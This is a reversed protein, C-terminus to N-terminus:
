GQKMSKRNKLIERAQKDTLYGDDILRAATKPNIGLAKAAKTLSGTEREVNIFIKQFPAVQLPTLVTIKKLTRQYLERM